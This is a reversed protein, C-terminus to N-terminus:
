VVGRTLLRGPVHTIGDELDQYVVDLLERLEDNSPWADRLDDLGLQADLALEALRRAKTLPTEVVTVEM